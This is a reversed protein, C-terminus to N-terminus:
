EAAVQASPHPAVGVTAHVGDARAQYDGARARPNYFQRYWTRSRHFPGDTPLRLITIAAEKTRWIEFDQSFAALGVDHYGQQVAVDEATPPSNRAKTLLGHWIQTVGDEKPTHLVIQVADTTGAYRAVLIGPGTYFADVDMVSDGVAMTEHGGGSRQRGIVGDFTTDFYVLRQGHIPGFHQTDGLNDIIEQPHVAIAGLDDYEGRLWQPDDWEPLSPLDYDPAGEETDHWVFICGFREEVPYARVRAAHPIPGDFYPVHDCRGDPGFRWAHYPCRIADGEIRKAAAEDSQPAAFHARMHPCYADLLVARGSQGRYLVLDRGLMRLAVPVKGIDTSRAVMFWGRPFTFEGLGYSATTAM